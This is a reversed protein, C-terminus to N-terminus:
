VAGFIKKGCSCTSAARRLRNEFGVITEGAKGFTDSVPASKPGKGTLPFIKREHTAYAVSLVRSVM